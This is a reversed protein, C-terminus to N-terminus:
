TLCAVATGGAVADQTVSAALVRVRVEGPRPARLDNEVVQMADVAGRRAVVISHYTM